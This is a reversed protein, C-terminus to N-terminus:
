NFRDSTTSFTFVFECLRRLFIFLEVLFFKKTLHGGTCVRRGDEPTDCLVIGATLVCGVAPM